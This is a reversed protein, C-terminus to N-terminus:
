PSGTPRERDRARARRRAATKEKRRQTTKAAQRRRGKASTGKRRRPCRPPPGRKQRWRSTRIQKQTEEQASTEKSARKKAKKQTARCGDWSRITVGGDGVKYLLAGEKEGEPRTATFLWTGYRHRPASIDSAERWQQAELWKQLTGPTWSTPVGTAAYRQREKRSPTVGRLGLSAGGGRRVALPAKKEDAITLVRRYYERDTEEKKRDVWDVPERKGDLVLNEMFIGRKGSQQVLREAEKKPLKAYGLLGHYSDIRVDRWGYTRFSVGPETQGSIVKEPAQWIETWREPTLYQPWIMVRLPGLEENEDIPTEAAKVAMTPGPWEPRDENLPVFWRKVLGKGELDVCVEVGKKQMSKFAEEGEGAGDDDEDRCIILGM